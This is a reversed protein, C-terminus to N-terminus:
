RHDDVDAAAADFDGVARARRQTGRFAELKADDPQGLSEDVGVRQGPAVLALEDPMDFVLERFVQAVDLAGPEVADDARGPRNEAEARDRGGLAPAGAVLNAVQADRGLLNVAEAFLHGIAADALAHLQGAEIRAAGIEDDGARDQEVGDQAPELAVSIM